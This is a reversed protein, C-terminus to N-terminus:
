GRPDALAGSSASAWVEATPDSRSFPPVTRPDEVSPNDSLLSVLALSLVTFRPTFTPRTLTKLSSSPSSFEPSSSRTVQSHAYDIPDACSADRTRDM